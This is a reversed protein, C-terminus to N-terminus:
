RSRKIFRQSYIEEESGWIKERRTIMGRMKEDGGKGEV